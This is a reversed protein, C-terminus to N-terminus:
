YGYQKNMFMRSYTYLRTSIRVLGSFILPGKLVNRLTEEYVSYLRTAISIDFPM